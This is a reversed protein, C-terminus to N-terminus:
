PAKVFRSSDGPSEGLGDLARSPYSFQDGCFYSADRWFDRVTTPNGRKACSSRTRTSNHFFTRKRNASRRYSLRSSRKVLREKLPKIGETYIDGPALNDPWELRDFLGPNAGALFGGMEQLFQRFDDMQSYRRDKTSGDSELYQSNGWDIVTLSTRVPDWYLHEPKVDNWIVGSQKVRENLFETTHM